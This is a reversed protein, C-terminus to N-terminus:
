KKILYCLENDFLFRQYSWNPQSLTERFQSEYNQAMRMTRGTLTKTPFSVLLYETQLRKLWDLTKEKETQELVPLFKLILSLQAKQTPPNAVIDRAEAKGSPYYRHFFSNLFSMMDGYLDYAFYEAGPKLPMKTLALPNLGCALDLISAVEGIEALTRSFFYELHPVRERTSTHATMMKLLAKESDDDGEKLRELEAIWRAYPPVSDLYAGAVQHLTNKTEKVAEKLNRRKSLEGVGLRLILDPSIHRYKASEQIAALLTKLNPESSLM